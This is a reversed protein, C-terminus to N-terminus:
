KTLKVVDEPERLLWKGNTFDPISQPMGGQAISKESLASVVMWSAGDYVDIPMKTNNKLADVFARLELSDMGGHGGAKQEATIDKWIQPLFEEEYQASNCMNEQYIKSPNFGERMGDLFVMDCGMEYMGKTGRITFERNYFRPLCTDLRLTITEGNACTIITTVIDGQKFKKGINSPDKEGTVENVYEELGASKSAVSVLSVMRNGRNINLLRAIPGLEHTPYNECNRNLYNRLRYHRIVNGLTIEARLDHAYAGACHVITGFKGARALATALLEERNYCCNEMFMFPTKTREYAEVLQYCENVDYAGGVELATAIGNNMCDIAVTIHYEWSCAVYIADCKGCKILEKYDTTTFPAPQGAKVIEESARVNRDEYLDCVATVDVDPMKLIESCLMSYGRAGLGVIGLRVREM